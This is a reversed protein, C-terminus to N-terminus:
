FYFKFIFVILVLRDSSKIYNRLRLLIQNLKFAFLIIFTLLIGPNFNTAINSEKIEKKIQSSIKNEASKM